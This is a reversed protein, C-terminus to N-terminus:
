GLAQEKSSEAKNASGPVQLQVFRELFDVGCAVLLLLREFQGRSVHPPAM